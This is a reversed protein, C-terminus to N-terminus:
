SVALALVDFSLGRRGHDVVLEAQYLGARAPLRWSLRAGDQSLIRGGSVSWRIEGHGPGPSAIELEVDRGDRRVLAIRAPQRGELPLERRAIVVAGSPRIEFTFTRTVTCTADGDVGQLVGSLTFAGTTTEDALDIVVTLPDSPVVPRAVGGTVSLVDVETWRSMSYNSITVHLERESLSGHAGLTWGEAAVSDCTFPPPPPDVAGNHNCTSLGSTALAVSAGAALRRARRRNRM